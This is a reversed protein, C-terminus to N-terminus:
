ARQSGVQSVSRRWARAALSERRPLLVQKSWLMGAMAQRMVSAVDPTASAPTISRYFEDAERVRTAFMADFGDFPDPLLGADSLRLRRVVTEGPAVHVRHHAAAKTGTQAPNVAKTRGRVVFEHIADKVFPTANPKNFLRRTNTENETFLLPVDGDVYLHHPGLEAHSVHIAKTGTRGKVERLEPRAADSYARWTNRFWITPLIHLTATDAGRNTASIRIVIDGPTVKAYEVEVDFYKDDAFIGTDLLEYEFENRSRQRNTKVLDDYPYPRQPYKYLWKMYSHTPTSDLYFYYEKVDEGHNGEANTLGFLREKLIPDRGNWLAIAFCVRQEDDSIGALGDEGWNYTRSRSHDHTFYDWANGDASYDERVTGWQRESLYPGWRRWRVGQERAAGLRRHEEGSGGAATRANDSM